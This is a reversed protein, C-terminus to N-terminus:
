QHLVVRDGRNCRMYDTCLPLGDDRYSVVNSQSSLGSGSDSGGVSGPGGRVQECPGQGDVKNARSILKGATGDGEDLVALSLISLAVSLSVPCRLGLPPGM